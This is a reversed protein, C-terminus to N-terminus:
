LAVIPIIRMRCVTRRLGCADKNAEPVRSCSGCTLASPLLSFWCGLGLDLFGVQEGLAIKEADTTLAFLVATPETKAFEARLRMIAAYFRRPLRTNRHDPRFWVNGLEYLRKAEDVLWFTTFAVVLGDGDVALLCPAQALQRAIADKSGRQHHMRGDDPLLRALRDALHECSAPGLLNGDPLLSWIAPESFSLPAVPDPSAAPLPPGPVLPTDTATSLM